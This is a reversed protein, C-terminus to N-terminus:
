SVLHCMDYAGYGAYLVREVRSSSLGIWLSEFGQHHFLALIGVSRVMWTRFRTEVQSVDFPITRDIRRTSSDSDTALPFLPPPCPDTEWTDDVLDVCPTLSM